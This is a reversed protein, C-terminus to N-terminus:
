IRDGGGWCASSGGGSCAYAREWVRVLMNWARQMRSQKTAQGHPPHVANTSPGGELGARDSGFHIGCSYPPLKTSRDLRETFAAPHDATLAASRRMSPLTREGAPTFCRVLKALVRAKKDQLHKTQHM